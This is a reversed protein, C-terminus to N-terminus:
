NMKSDEAFMLPAVFEALFIQCFFLAKQGPSFDKIQEAFLKYFEAIVSERDHIYMNDWNRVAFRLVGNRCQGFIEEFCTTFELAELGAVMTVSLVSNMYNHYTRKEEIERLVSILKKSKNESSIIAKNKIIIDLIEDFLIM